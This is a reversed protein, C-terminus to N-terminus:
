LEEIIKLVTTVADRKAILCKYDTNDADEETKYVKQAMINFDSYLGNLTNYLGEKKGELEKCLTHVQKVAEIDTINDLAIKQIENSIDKINNM